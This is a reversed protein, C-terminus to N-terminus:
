GDGHMLPDAVAVQLQFGSRVDLHLNRILKLQHVLLVIILILTSEILKGDTLRIRYM